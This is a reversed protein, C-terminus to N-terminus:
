RFNFQFRGPALSNINARWPVSTGLSSHNFLLLLYLIMNHFKVYSKDKDKDKNILRKFFQYWIQETM